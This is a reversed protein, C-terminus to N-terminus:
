MQRAAGEVRKGVHFFAAQVFFVECEAQQLGFFHRHNGAGGEARVARTKAARAKGGAVILENFRAVPDISIQLAESRLVSFRMLPRVRIRMRRYSWGACM